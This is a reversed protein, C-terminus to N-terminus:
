SILGIVELNMKLSHLENFDCLIKHKFLGFMRGELPNGVTHGGGNIKQYHRLLKKM